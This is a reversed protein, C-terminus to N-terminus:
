VHENEYFVIGMISQERHNNNSLYVTHFDNLLGQRVQTKVDIRIMTTIILLVTYVNLLVAM